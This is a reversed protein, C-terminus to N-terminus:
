LPKGCRGCFAADTNELYGCNRCKVKVIPSPATQDQQMPNRGFGEKFGLGAAESAREIAPSAESALYSTVPRVMGFRLAGFGAGLLIIGIFASTATSAMRAQQASFDFPNSSVPSFMSAFSSFFFGAGILVLVIGIAMLQNRTLGFLTADDDLLLRSYSHRFGRYIKRM